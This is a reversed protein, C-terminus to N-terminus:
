RGCNSCENTDEDGMVRSECGRCRAGEEVHRGIEPGLATHIEQSLKEFENM